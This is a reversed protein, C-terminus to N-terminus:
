RKEGYRLGVYHTIALAIEDFRSRNLFLKGGIILEDKLKNFYHTVLKNVNKRAKHYEQPLFKKKDQAKNNTQNEDEAEEEEAAGEEELV